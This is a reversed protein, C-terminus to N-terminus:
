YEGTTFELSANIACLEPPVTFGEPPITKGRASSISSDIMGYARGFMHHAPTGHKSIHKALVYVTRDGYKLPDHLQSWYALGGFTDDNYMPPYHPQSGVEVEMAYDRLKPAVMTVQSYIATKLTRQQYLWWMHLGPSVEPGVWHYNELYNSLPGAFITSQLRGSSVPTFERISERISTAIRSFEINIYDWTSSLAGERNFSRPYWLKSLAEADFTAELVIAPPKYPWTM